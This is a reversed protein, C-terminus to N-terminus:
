ALIQLGHKAVISLLKLLLSPRCCLKLTRGPQSLKALM